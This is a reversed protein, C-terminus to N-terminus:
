LAFIKEDCNSLIKWEEKSSNHVIFEALESKYDGPTENKYLHKIIPLIELDIRHELIGDMPNSMGRVVGFAYLKLEENNLLPLIKNRISTQKDIQEKLNHSEPIPYNNEYVKRSALKLYILAHIFYWEWRNTNWHLWAM